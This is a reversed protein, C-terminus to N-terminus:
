ARCIPPHHDLSRGELSLSSRNGLSFFPVWRKKTWDAGYIRDAVVFFRLQGPTFFGVSWSKSFVIQKEVHKQFLSLGDSNKDHQKGSKWRALLKKSVQDTGAPAGKNGKLCQWQTYIVVKQVFGCATSMAYFDYLDM